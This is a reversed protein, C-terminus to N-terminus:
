LRRFLSQLMETTEARQGDRILWEEQIPFDEEHFLAGISEGFGAQLRRDEAHSGYFSPIGTQRDKNFGGKLNYHHRQLPDMSAFAEAMERRASRVARSSRYAWALLAYVPLYSEIFRRRLQYHAIRAELCTRRLSESRQSPVGPERADSDFLAWLRLTEEHRATEARIQMDGLGGGHDLEIWGAKQLKLYEERWPPPAVVKLFAGDNHRNEVLIRLPRRLFPLAVPLPLRPPASEWDSTQDATVRVTVDSPIGSADGELGSELALVVAERLTPELVALWRNLAQDAEPIYLPDTQIRHQGEYGLRFLSLLALSDTRPSSFVEDELIVIL